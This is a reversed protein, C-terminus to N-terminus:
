IGKKEMDRASRSCMIFFSLFFFTPPYLRISTLWDTSDCLDILLPMLMGWEGFRRAVVCGAAKRASVSLSTRWYEGRSTEPDANVTLSHLPTHKVRFVFPDLWWVSQQRSSLFSVMVHGAAKRMGVSLSMRGTRDPGGVMKTAMLNLWCM